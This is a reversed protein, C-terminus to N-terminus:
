YMVGVFVGVKGGLGNGQSKGYLDPKGRGEPTYGADELTAIAYELFLREQPDMREAERPSINFFLPDFEDIGDIFGGWKSYTTGAKNKDPDFYPRHDWREAPIETICDRGTRLNDWFEQLDRAGPYRGAMGIIAIATNPPALEGGDGAQGAAGQLQ